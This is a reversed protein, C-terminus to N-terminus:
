DDGLVIFALYLVGNVTVSSTASIAADAITVNLNANLTQDTNDIVVGTQTPTSVGRNGNSVGAVGAVLATSPVLSIENASLTADATIAHGVSFNGTFTATINAGATVQLNAVAGLVLINGQPLGQIAAGGYAVAAGPDTIPVVLNRIPIQLRIIEQQTARGRSMSRPLGKSM